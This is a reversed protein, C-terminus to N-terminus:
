LFLALNVLYHFGSAAPSYSNIRQISAAANCCVQANACNHPHEIFSIYHLLAVLHISCAIHHIARKESQNVRIFSLSRMFKNKILFLLFKDEALFAYFNM